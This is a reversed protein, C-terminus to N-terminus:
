EMMGINWRGSRGNQRKNARTKDESAHGMSGNKWFEILGFNWRGKNTLTKDERTPAQIEEPAHGM